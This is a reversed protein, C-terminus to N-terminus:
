PQKSKLKEFIEAGKEYHEAANSRAYTQDMDARGFAPHVHEFTIRDRAEIVVGDRRACHSFWNDSFMSFFSPHLFYGQREYRRRTCIAMVILDDTRHGDSVSLVSEKSTDGIAELILHDWHMPPDWDDSMQLLVQGHCAAAAANWAAVPGHGQSMVHRCAIFPGITPDDPDLAFIHEIADPNRARDLWKARAQYAQAPRGRTAHLLSIKAGHRIFHNLELAAAEEPRNNARLTMGRVQIGQWGYFKKRSNWWWHPPQQIGMMVESWGLATEFQNAKLSEMALEAYAERRAPDVAIAQLYLQARTAADPVMQGLVLFSEYREPKGADPATALAQATQIAGQILGLARESQMRYFLMGSTQEEEPISKLIRLNREDSSHSRKGSPLHLVHVQDFRAMKAAPDFKLSEHVRNRWTASGSRWIRERHLTIGDDPVMYPILVGAIDDGLNPLMDRIQRCHEAEIVDDTDAWMLWKGRALSSAKNRAAAFDDVHPWDHDAANMYEDVACGREIAIDLTRDPTQNGIARVIIIQDAIPQFADLFRGIYKEVNGAIVCLSILPQETM